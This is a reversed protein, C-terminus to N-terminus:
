LKHTGPKGRKKLLADLRPYVRRANGEFIKYRDQESLGKVQDVYRKTDDYHHGTQPDIGKVAGVMESAFLINDVPIVKALLEIGPLHYVCTDFYVNKLLYEALAPKGM